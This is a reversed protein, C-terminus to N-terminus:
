RALAQLGLAWYRMAPQAVVEWRQVDWGYLESAALMTRHVGYVIGATDRVVEGTSIRVRALGMGEVPSALRELNLMNLAHLQGHAFASGMRYILTGVADDDDGAVLQRVLEMERVPAAGLFPAEMPRKRVRLRGGPAKSVGFGHARAGNLIDEM